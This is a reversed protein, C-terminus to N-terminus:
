SAIPPMEGSASSVSAGARRAQLGREVLAGRAPVDDGEAQLVGRRLDLVADGASAAAPTSRM